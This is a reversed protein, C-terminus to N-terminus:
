ILTRWLYTKGTGGHGCVFFLKGVEQEILQMVAHYIVKQEHNLGVFLSQYETLLIEKDYCLEEYLLRNRLDKITICDLNPLGPYDDLSRDNKKM